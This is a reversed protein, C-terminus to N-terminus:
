CGTVQYLAADGEHDTETLVPSQDLRLMGPYDEFYMLSDRPIMEDDVEGPTPWKPEETFDDGEAEQNPASEPADPDNGTSVLVGAEKLEELTEESRTDYHDLGFDLMYTVDLRELLSCAEATDLNTFDHALERTDATVENRLHAFLPRRNSFAEVLSTGTWPIGAIVASEPVEDTIRSLLAREDASLLRENTENDFMHRVKDIEQGLAGGRTATLVVVFVLAVAIFARLPRRPLRSQAGESVLELVWSFAISALPIAFIPVLASLRHADNYWLGTLTTRVPDSFSAAVVYLGGSLLWSAILWRHRQRVITLAVGALTLVTLPLARTDTLVTNSIFQTIAQVLSTNYTRENDGTTINLWIVPIAILPLALLLVRLGRHRVTKRRSAATALARLLLPLAFVLTAMLANPHALTAAGLAGFTTLWAASVTSNARLFDHRLALHAFGLAIPLLATSLFNPYLIGWSLIHLPFTPFVTVMAAVALQNVPRGKTFPASFFLMSVPWVIAGVVFTLANTAVLVSAGSLQVILAVTAHWLTPYFSSSTSDIATLNLAFPSSNGTELIRAVANLHFVNDFSQSFADPAGIASRLLLAILAASLLVPVLARLAEPWWAVPADTRRTILPRLAFILGGIVASVAVVLWVNWSSRLAGAAISAVAINLFSAAIAGAWFTIGRLRLGWAILTGPAVSLALAVIAAPAMSLWIM